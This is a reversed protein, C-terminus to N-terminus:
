NEANREKYFCLFLIGVVLYGVAIVPFIVGVSTGATVMSGVVAPGVAGGFRAIASAWGVGTGRIETPYTMTICSYVINYVGTTGAGAIVCLVILMANATVYGLAAIVIAIFIALVVVTKKFGIRDAIWGIIAAAPLSCLNFLLLFFLSNSLGYGGYVMLRALWTQMSFSTYMVLIFVIWFLITYRAMGNTFLSKLAEVVSTRKPKDETGLMYEDGEEPVFNPDAAALVKQLRATYGRKVYYTTSEPMKWIFIPMLLIPLLAVFFLPRWGFQELFGMCILTSIVSGVSVGSIAMTTILARNKLPTYEAIYTMLVPTFGALGVGSLLKFVTLQEPTQAFGILGTFLSYIATALLLAKKRGIIDSLMGFFIGGIMMGYMGASTIFGLTVDQIGTDAQMVTLAGAWIGMDYGDFLILCFGLAIVMVFFKNLKSEGIVETINVKRSM